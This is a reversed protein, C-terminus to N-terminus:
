GKKVLRGGKGAEVKFSRIAATLKEVSEPKTLDVALDPASVETMLSGASVGVSGQPGDDPAVVLHQIEGRLDHIAHIKV